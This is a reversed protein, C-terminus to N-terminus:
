NPEALLSALKNRLDTASFPKAIFETHRALTQEGTVQPQTYGSMIVTRLAPHRLRIRDALEVGGPGPIITDTVLVSLSDPDGAESHMLAAEGEAAELIAFGDAELMRRVVARVHEDDEVLLLTRGTATLPEARPRVPAVNLAAEDVPLYVKFSTGRAPESYVWVFGGSQTVIGYVTALGLGTGHEEAKTTYFPEFVHSMTEADMGVGTDAVEVMVYHGPEGNSAPHRSFYDPDLETDALAITLTGGGAMADSANVALNVLVQEIQGPDARVRGLSLGLRTEIAINSPILRRLMPELGAVTENLDFVVPELAQGRGFTLLQRTM